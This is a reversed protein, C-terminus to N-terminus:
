SDILAPAQESEQVNAPQALHARAFRDFDDSGLPRSFYYGQIQDCGQARLLERQELTEVGEAVIEKQLTHGMAIIAASIARSDRDTTLDVVFSRDIKVIDVPLRKLYAMSSYGTGFDDIAIRIGIERLSALSKEVGAMDEMMVSETIELELSGPSMGYKGVMSRVLDVFGSERFQRGSVNVSIREPAIGEARMHQYHACAKELVQAGIAVIMGTEEACEIFHFPSLLGRQPHNWRVLAEAGCLYGSRLDQQPQYHVLFEDREVARRIERELSLRASAELNMREEFYVHNGGGSDKARYMATDANKLLEETTTGDVPFVSIGISAGLFYQLGAIEFPQSLVQLMTSATVEADRPAALRPLIVTFEDGGLRALTDSKRICSRLRDAAHQLLQDGSAHGLSDNVTKFRDLDIFLVALKADERDAHALEQSLRDIFLMRNPLQTLSDFHAQKYLLADRAASSLAVALRDAFDRIQAAQEEDQAPEALYGLRLLGCARQNWVIPLSLVTQPNFAALPCAALNEGSFQKSRVGDPHAMLVEVEHPKLAVRQIELSDSEAYSRTYVKGVEPSDPDIVTISAMDVRVIQPLRTLMMEVLQDIQTRSLMVRDIEAFTALANFQRGLQTAMGNFAGALEGFEDNRDVVVPEGFQKAALRRTGAILKELPVLTRRIQTAGLLCAVLISVGIIPLFSNKFAALAGFAESEPMTAMVTWDAAAFEAHLFLAWYSAIHNESDHWGLSGSSSNGLSTSLRTLASAPLPKSCFLVSASGHLVCFDTQYPFTEVDGWLYGPNIEAIVFSSQHQLSTVPRVLFVRARADQNSEALMLAKGEALRIRSSATIEPVVGINRLLNISHGNSDIVAVAAIGNQIHPDTVSEPAPNRAITQLYQDMLQLRGFAGTGFDKASQTLQTHSQRVLADSVQRISLVVIAAVPVLASLVFLFLVQRAVKGGSFAAPLKL